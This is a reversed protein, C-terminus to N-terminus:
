KGTFQPKRKEIFATTGEKCDATAFLEGFEMQEIKTAEATPVGYTKEITRKIAALALPARMSITTAVRMVQELLAEPECVQNALGCAKADEASLMDGTFTLEKALSPGVKRALRVSGGFGPMLGLTCEPLGFKAKSSAYIFDCSMALELGGGLAFGNVAAIVPISLSEFRAFVKQGHGAFDRATDSDLTNIEKIDAGAVFAKEGAGTVILCRLDKDEQVQNLVADLNNLVESSLANLAEPKNITVVAIHENKKEYKVLSM